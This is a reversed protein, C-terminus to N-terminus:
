VRMGGSTSEFGTRGQRGLYPKSALRDVRDTGGLTM